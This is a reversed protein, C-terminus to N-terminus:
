RVGADTSRFTCRGVVGDGDARGARQRAPVRGPREDEDGVRDFRQADREIVAPGGAGDVPHLFQEPGGTDAIPTTVSPRQHAITLARGSVITAEPM